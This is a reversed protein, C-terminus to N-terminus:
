NHERKTQEKRAQKLEASLENISTRMAAAMAPNGARQECVEFHKIAQEIAWAQEAWTRMGTRPVAQKKAM